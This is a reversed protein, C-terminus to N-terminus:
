LAHSTVWVGGLGGDIETPTGGVDITAV